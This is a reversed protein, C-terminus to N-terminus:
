LMQEVSCKTIGHDRRYVVFHKRKRLIVDDVIVFDRSRGSPVIPVHTEGHANPVDVATHADRCACSRIVHYVSAM